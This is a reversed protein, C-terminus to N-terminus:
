RSTKLRWIAQLQPVLIERKFIEINEPSLEMIKFGSANRTIIDNFYYVDSDFIFQHGSAFAYISTYFAGTMYFTIRDTEKGLAVGNFTKEFITRDSYYPFEGGHRLLLVPENNADLGSALQNRLLNSLYGSNSNIINCIEQALNFTQLGEITKRLETLSM